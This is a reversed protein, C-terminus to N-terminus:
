VSVSRRGPPSFCPCLLFFLRNYVQPWVFSPKVPVPLVQACTLGSNVTGAINCDCPLCVDPSTPDSRELRFFGGVCLECNKGSPLFPCFRPETLPDRPQPREGTAGWRHHPAHLRRLHRRRRSLAWGTPRWSDRRLPLLPRPRSLPLAPLEYAPAPWRVQVAQWQLPSCLAPVLPVIVSTVRINSICVYVETSWCHHSSFKARSM